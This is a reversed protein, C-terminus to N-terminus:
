IKRNNDTYTERIHRSHCRDRCLSLIHICDEACHEDSTNHRDYYSQGDLLYPLHERRKNDSCNNERDPKREIRCGDVVHCTIRGICIFQDYLLLALCLRKNVTGPLVPEYSEYSKTNHHREVM